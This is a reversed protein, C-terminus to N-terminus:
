YGTVLDPYQPSYIERTVTALPLSPFVQTIVVQTEVFCM